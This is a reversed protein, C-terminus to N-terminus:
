PTQRWRLKDEVFNFWRDDPRPAGGPELEIREFSRRTYPRDYFVLYAQGVDFRPTISCFNEDSGMRGGGHEWFRADSHDRSYVTGQEVPWGGGIITFRDRYPGALRKLVVFEFKVQGLGMDTAQVVKALSVDRAGALQDDISMAQYRDPVRCAHATGTGGALMAFIGALCRARLWSQGPGSMLAEM